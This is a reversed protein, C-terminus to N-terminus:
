NESLQLLNSHYRSLVRSILHFHQEDTTIQHTLLIQNPLNDVLLPSTIPETGEPHRERKFSRTYEKREARARLHKTLAGLEILHKNSEPPWIAVLFFAFSRSNSELDM